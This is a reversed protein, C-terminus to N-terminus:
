RTRAARRRLAGTRALRVHDGALHRHGDVTLGASRAGARGADPAPDGPAPDRAVAVAAAVGARHRRAARAPGHPRLVPVGRGPRGRALRAGRGPGAHRRHVGAGAGLRRRPRGGRSAGAPLPARLGRGARRASGAGAPRSAVEARPEGGAGNRSRLRARVRNHCRHVWACRPGRSAPAMGTRSARRAVTSAGGNQQPATGVGPPTLRQAATAARRHRPETVVHHPELPDRHPRRDRVLPGRPCQHPRELVAARGAEGVWQRGRDGSPSGGSRSDGPATRTGTGMGAGPATAAAVVLGLPDGRRQGPAAAQRHLSQRTRAGAGRCTPRPRWCRSSSVPRSTRQAPRAGGAGPLARRRRRWWRHWARRRRRPTSRVRPAARNRGNGICPRWAASMRKATAAAATVM